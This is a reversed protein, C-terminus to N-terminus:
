TGYFPCILCKKRIETFIAAGHHFKGPLNCTCQKIFNSSCIGPYQNDAIDSNLSDESDYKDQETNRVNIMYKSMGIRNFTLYETLRDLNMTTSVM